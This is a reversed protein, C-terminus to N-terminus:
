CAFKALVLNGFGEWVYSYVLLNILKLKVATFSFSVIDRITKCSFRDNHSAFYKWLINFWTAQDLLFYFSFFPASNIIENGVFSFM